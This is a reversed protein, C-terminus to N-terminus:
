EVTNYRKEFCVSPKYGQKASSMKQLTEESYIGKKGKNWPVQKNRSKTDKIKELTEQTHPKRTFNVRGPNYGSGPCENSRKNVVGNNWWKYNKM